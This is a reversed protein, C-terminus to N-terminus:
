LKEGEYKIGAAHRCQELTSIIMGSQAHSVRVSEIDGRCLTEYFDRMEMTLPNEDGAFLCEELNTRRDKRIVKGITGPSTYMMTGNEGEIESQLLSTSVKSTIVVADFGEYSLIATGTADVGSALFTSSAQIRHPRGFWGVLNAIGYVGLDMWSGNQLEKQFTPPNEQRLYADYRSSYRSYNVVVRRIPGLSSLNKRIVAFADTYLPVIGDMLCVNQEGAMNCLIKAEAFRACLPKEVFVALGAKMCAISMPVHMVNPVALYVADLKVKKQALMDAFSNFAYPIAHAKAFDHAHDPHKACVAVPILGPVDRIAALMSQAITNTGAIGIQFQKM